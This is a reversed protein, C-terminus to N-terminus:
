IRVATRHYTFLHAFSHLHYAVKGKNQMLASLHSTKNGPAATADIVVANDRAPPALVIAPFCSAKDQLIIKGSKYTPDDHFQVTPSFSLLDPVHTDKAFGKSRPLLYHPDFVLSFPLGLILPDQCNLAV